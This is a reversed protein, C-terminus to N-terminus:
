QQLDGSVHESSEGFQSGNADAPLEPSAEIGEAAGTSEISEVDERENADNAVGEHLKTKVKGIKIDFVMTKGALEGEKYTAEHKHGGSLPHKGILAPEFVVAGSGVRVPIIDQAELKGDITAEYEVWVVDGIKITEEAGLLRLGLKADTLQEFQAGDLVKNDCLLEQLTELRANYNKLLVMTSNLLKHQSQVRDMTQGVMARITKFEQIITSEKM